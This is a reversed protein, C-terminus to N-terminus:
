KLALFVLGYFCTLKFQQLMKSIKYRSHTSTKGALSNKTLASCFADNGYINIIYNEARKLNQDVM